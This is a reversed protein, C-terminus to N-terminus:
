SSENYDLASCLSTRGARTKVCSVRKQAGLSHAYCRAHGPPTVRPPPTEASRLLSSLRPSLLHWVSLIHVPVCNDATIRFNAKFDWPADSLKAKWDKRNIQIKISRVYTMLLFLKLKFLGLSNCRLYLYYIFNQLIDLLATDRIWLIDGHAM